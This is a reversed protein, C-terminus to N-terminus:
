GMYLIRQNRGLTADKRSGSYDSIMYRLICETLEQYLKLGAYRHEGNVVKNLKSFPVKLIRVNRM